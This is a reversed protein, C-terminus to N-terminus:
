SASYSPPSQILQEACSGCSSCSDDTEEPAISPSIIRRGPAVGASSREVAMWACLARAVGSVLHLHAAMETSQDALQRARKDLLRGFTPMWWASHDQLFSARADRCVQAHDVGGDLTAIREKEILVALFEIEMAVFDFREPATQNPILGFARYFGAIDALEQARYTADKWECYETEYPPCLKAMVLGFVRQHIRERCEVPIALWEVVPTLDVQIPDIEGIGLEDGSIAGREECMISWAWNILHLETEPCRRALPSRPDAFAAALASAVIQRALPLEINVTDAPATM